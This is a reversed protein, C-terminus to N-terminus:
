STWKKAEMGDPPSTEVPGKQVDAWNTSLATGNSETYSKIMARRTDPDAGKFLTKFFGDPDNAEEDDEDAGIKEWNKPGGRASTPYSPTANSTKKEAAAARVAEINSPTPATTSDGGELSSWKQGPMSKKLTLEIKYATINHSSRTTDISAFLPDLSFDYTSSDATLFSVSVSREHIDITAQDKPVGKAMITIHINETNQYWDHKIAKAPTAVIQPKNATTSSSGNSKVAEQAKGSTTSTKGSKLEEETPISIDPVDKVTVQKMTDDDALGALKKKVMNEWVLLSKEKENKQRVIKLVYDADGYKELNYLLMGRRMQAEAILERRQRELAIKVAIEADRLAADYDPPSSRQYATSRKIYFKFGMPNQRIKKTFEAIATPYDRADLAKDGPEASVTTAPKESGQSMHKRMIDEM